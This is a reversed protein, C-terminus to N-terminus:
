IRLNFRVRCIRDLGTHRNLYITMSSGGGPTLPNGETTGLQSDSRGSPYLSLSWDYQDFSFYSTEMKGLKSHNNFISQNIKFKHEFVTKINSLNFELQFEGNRDM